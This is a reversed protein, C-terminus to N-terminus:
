RRRLARDMERRDDRKKLDQRKDHHSKGRVLALTVKALGRESFYIDLPVLTLGKQFVKPGLRAIERRHLLLKRRRLPEHNQVNGHDYTAIHCGFLWVEGATIRAFAEDLSARAQRLSKVETGTLVLGCEIRDLIEYRKAAKKNRIKPQPPSSKSM